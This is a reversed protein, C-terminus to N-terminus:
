FSELEHLTMTRLRKAAMAQWDHDTDRWHDSLEAICDHKLGCCTGRILQHKRNYIRQVGPLGCAIGHAFWASWDRDLLKPGGMDEGCVPCYKVPLGRPM